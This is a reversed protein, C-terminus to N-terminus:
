HSETIKFDVTIIGTQCATKLARVINARSSSCVLSVLKLFTYDNGEHLQMLKRFTPCLQFVTSDAHLSWMGIWADKLIIDADNPRNIFYPSVADERSYLHPAIEFRQTKVTTLMM